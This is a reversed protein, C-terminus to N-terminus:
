RRRPANLTPVTPRNDTPMLDGPMMASGFDVHLRIPGASSRMHGQRKVSQRM